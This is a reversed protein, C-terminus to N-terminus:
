RKRAVVWTSVHWLPDDAVAIRHMPHWTAHPVPVFRLGAADMLWTWRSGVGGCLVVEGHPRVLLELAEPTFRWFDSPFGHRPNIFCTTHVVLGGPRVVRFSEGIPVDPTAEVHELVQDAFLADYSADEDPLTRLDHSPYSRQELPGSFGMVRALQDSNSISVGRETGGWTLALEELAKYMGYRTVHPGKPLGLSTARYLVRTVRGLFGRDSM